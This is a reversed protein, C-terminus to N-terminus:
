APKILLLASMACSPSLIRTVFSLVLVINFSFAMLNQRGEIHILERPIQQRQVVSTLDVQKKLFDSQRLKQVHDEKYQIVSFIIYIAVFRIIFKFINRFSLIIINPDM